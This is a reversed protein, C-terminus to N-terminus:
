AIEKIEYPFKDSSRKVLLYHTWCLFRWQPNGKDFVYKGNKYRPIEYAFDAEAGCQKTTEDKFCCQGSM